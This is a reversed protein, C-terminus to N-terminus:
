EADKKEVLVEDAVSPLPPLQEGRGLSKLSSFSGGKWFSDFRDKVVTDPKEGATKPRDVSVRSLSRSEGTLIRTPAEMKPEVVISRRYLKPVMGSHEERMRNLHSEIWTQMEPVAQLKYPVQFRQLLGIIKATRIYKDFNIVHLAQGSSDTSGPITRTKPNGADVFTLDTLYMGLFPLCPAVPTELVKRLSAHNKSVDVVSSLEDFRAKTKKSVLDWTRRLRQVVSSNLSCAIAMLSDYNRLDHCYMAIKVWKKIVLARKKACEPALITDGVLHTLDTNLKCLGRINRAKTSGTKSWDLSLMEEASIDCFLKSMLLTIQRALELPDFDVVSCNHDGTNAIRLSNLQGRTVNPAAGDVQAEQQLGISMSTKGVGSVLPGTQTGTHYSATIRRMLEFLREGASPLFPKIKHLAFYRMDGLADRDTEPSWYTELWGKFFNYIRLRVPSGVLRSDGVYEFRHILASALDRPTTFQRFTLYFATLFQPCPANDHLTLQEVLAQLSGGTVQGDKNIILEHAYSKQLLQAEADNSVDTAASRISSISGFSALYSEDLATPAKAQEPTTALTSTESLRSSGSDSLNSHNVGFSSKRSPFTSDGSHTSIRLALTEADASRTLRVTPKGHFILPHSFAKESQSSSSKAPSSPCSKQTVHHHPAFDQTEIAADGDKPVLPPPPPLMTGSTRPRRPAGPRADKDSPNSVVNGMALPYELEFDGTQEIFQHTKAVCQGATRILCTAVEVVKNNQEPLVIVVDAAADLRNLIEDALAKLDELRNRFDVKVAEVLEINFVGRVYVKEIIALVNECAEVSRNTTLLLESFSRTQLHHGLFAGMHGILDDHARALKVSALSEHCISGPLGGLAFRHSSSETKPIDQQTIHVGESAMFPSKPTVSGDRRSPFVSDNTFCKASDPHVPSSRRNSTKSHAVPAVNEDPPTMPENATTPNNRQKPSGKTEQTWVDVFRIGRTVIKCTKAILEDLLVHVVEGAFPEGITEQLRKSMQVVASLDALLGKRLRRVGVLQQVWASNRHLCDTRELLFRVGAILGRIYDQRVFASLSGNESDGLLHWLQTMASLLNRVYPHDYAECYNTPFWGRSGTALVTGDAWGNAHVSHVLILDGQRLRITISASDDESLSASPDFPHFARLYNPFLQEDSPRTESDSSASVPTVPPTMQPQQPAVKFQTQISPTAHGKNPIRSVQSTEADLEYLQATPKQQHSNNAWMM